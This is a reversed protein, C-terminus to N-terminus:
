RSEDEELLLWFREGDDDARIDALAPLYLRLAAILDAKRVVVGAVRLPELDVTPSPRHGKAHGIPEIARPTKVPM